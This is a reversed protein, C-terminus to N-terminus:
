RFTALPRCIKPERADPLPDPYARRHSSWLALNGLMKIGAAEEAEEKTYAWGGAHNYFKPRKETRGLDFFTILARPVAEPDLLRIGAYPYFLRCEALLDLRTTDYDSACHELLSVFRGGQAAEGLKGFAQALAVAAGRLGEVGEVFAVQQKGEAYLTCFEDLRADADKATLTEGDKGISLVGARLYDWLFPISGLAQIKERTARTRIEVFKRNLRIEESLPEPRPNYIFGAIERPKPELNDKRDWACPLKSAEAERELIEKCYHERAEPEFALVWLARTNWALGPFHERFIEGAATITAAAEALRDALAGRRAADFYVQKRM